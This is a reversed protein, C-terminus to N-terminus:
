GNKAEKVTPGVGTISEVVMDVGVVEAIKDGLNSEASLLDWATRIPQPYEWREVINLVLERELTGYDFGLAGNYMNSYVNVAKTVCANRVARTLPRKWIKMKKDGDYTIEVEVIAPSVVIDPM